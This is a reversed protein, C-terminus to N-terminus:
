QSEKGLAQVPLTFHFCAGAGPAGEAWIRGGHRHIIRRVTALGIGDGEVDASGPLRLFPAFLDAEHAMDFGRGDDRVFFEEEPGPRSGFHVHAPNRDRTYKWANELLNQLVQKLLAVDGHARLDEDVHFEVIREPSAARFEDDIQRALAGLDVDQPILDTSSVRSLHLLAELMDRLRRGARDAREVLSRVEDSLSAGHDELLAEHYASIARLPARLDHSVSYTFAELEANREVLEKRAKQLARRGRDLEVFVHVKSALVAPDFPKLLYDVAGSEYGKFVHHEQTREATLFIVPLTETRPASRLLEALEYGDMGPMQVDLIALGFDHDLSAVLAENGSRARVFRADVGRLSRELALLNAEHDDVILIETRETAITM